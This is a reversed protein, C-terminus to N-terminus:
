RSAAATTPGACTSSRATPRRWRTSSSWRTPGAGAVMLAAVGDPLRLLADTLHELEIEGHDRRRALNQAAAIAEQQSNEMDVRSQERRDETSVGPPFVSELPVVSQQPDLWARAVEFWSPRTEPNGLVNVTLLSLSGETPYTPEDPITILPVEEGDVTVSGLTDFVPGPREIVYPSPLVAMGLVGFLTVALLLWGVRRSRSRAAEHDVDVGDTFLSM